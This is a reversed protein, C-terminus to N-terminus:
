GPRGTCLRRLGAADGRLALATDRQRDADGARLGVEHAAADDAANQLLERLDLSRTTAALAEARSRLTSVSTVVDGGGRAVAGRPASPAAAPAPLAALASALALSADCERILTAPASPSVAAASARSASLQGQAVLAVALALAGAAVASGIVPAWRRDRSRSARSTSTM